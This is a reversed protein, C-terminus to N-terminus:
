VNSRSSHTHHPAPRRDICRASPTSQHCRVFSPASFSPTPGVHHPFFPLLIAVRAALTHSTCKRFLSPSTRQISRDSPVLLFCVFVSERFSADVGKLLPHSSASIAPTPPAACDTIPTTPTTPVEASTLRSSIIPSHPFQDARPQPCSTRWGSSDSAAQDKGKGCKTGERTEDGGGRKGDCRCM